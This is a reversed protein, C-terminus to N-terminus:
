ALDRYHNIQDETLADARKLVNERAAAVRDKAAAQNQAAAAVSLSALAGALIWSQIKM